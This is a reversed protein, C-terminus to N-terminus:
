YADLGGERLRFWLTERPFRDNDWHQMFSVRPLSIVWDTPADEPSKFRAFPDYLTLEEDGAELGIVSHYVTEPRGRTRYPLVDDGFYSPGLTIIPYSATNDAIVAPIVKYDTGHGDKFDAVVGADAVIPDLEQKLGVAGLQTLPNAQSRGCAKNLERYPVRNPDQPKQIRGYFEDLVNKLCAPMCGTPERQPQFNAVVEDIIADAPPKPDCRTDAM